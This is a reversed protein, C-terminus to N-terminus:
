GERNTRCEIPVADLLREVWLRVSGRQYEALAWTELLAVAQRLAAV